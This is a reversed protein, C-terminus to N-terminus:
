RLNLMDFGTNVVRVIRDKVNIDRIIKIDNFGASLLLDKVENGFRENIELYLKGTTNLHVKSFDSITKYFILPNKDDVFLARGPEFNLVNKEMLEKESFTVYPPNSVIIDFDKDSLEIIDTLIDGQILSLEINNELSNTKLVNLAESSIDLAFVKSGPLKKALSLAICGSGSGVDLIMLDQKYKNEKIILDVLEETEPRPILVHKNVNIKLGYFETFGIIYQLPEFAKLRLVIDKLTKIEKHSLASNEKSILQVSSIKFVDSFIINIFSTIENGLYLDTLKKRIYIKAEKVTM